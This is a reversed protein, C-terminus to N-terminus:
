ASGGIPASSVTASVEAGFPLGFIYNITRTAGKGLPADEWRVSLAHLRNNLLLDGPPIQFKGALAVVNFGFCGEGTPLVLQLLEQDPPPIFLFIYGNIVWDGNVGLSADLPKGQGDYPPSEM